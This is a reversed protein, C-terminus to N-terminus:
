GQELDDIDIRLKSAELEMQKIKELQENLWNQAREDVHEGPLSRAAKM